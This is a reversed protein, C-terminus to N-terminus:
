SHQLTVRGFYAFTFFSFSTSVSLKNKTRCENSYLIDSLSRSTLRLIYGSTTLNNVDLSLVWDQTSLFLKNEGQSEEFLCHQIPELQGTMPDILHIRERTAADPYINRFFRETVIRRKISQRTDSSFLKETSRFSAAAKQHQSLLSYGICHELVKFSNM